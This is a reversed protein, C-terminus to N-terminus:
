VLRRVPEDDALLASRGRRCWDLLQEIEGPNLESRTHEPPEVPGCLGTGVTEVSSRQLDVRRVLLLEIPLQEALFPALLDVAEAIEAHRCAERWVQQLLGTDEQMAEM